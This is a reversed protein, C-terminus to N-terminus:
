SPGCTSLMVTPGTVLPPFIRLMVKPPLFSLAIETLACVACTGIIAGYGDPCPLKNGESDTPCTGNAYMQALAGQAVTIISFSIGVVSILGTGIYYSEAADNNAKYSEGAVHRCIQYQTYSDDIM